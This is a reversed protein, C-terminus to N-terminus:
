HLYTITKPDSLTVLEELNLFAFMDRIHCIAPPAGANTSNFFHCNYDTEGKSECPVTDSPLLVDM